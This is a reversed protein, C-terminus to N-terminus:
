AQGVEEVMEGAPSWTGAGGRQFVKSGIHEGLCRYSEWQAEDFFQDLTTEQPFRPHDAQYQAVDVPEDGTLSPKVLLLWGRGGGAYQVEALAAHASSRPSAGGAASRPSVGELPGITPRLEAALKLDDLGARDLFRIEAGYDVRAKRVLNGLDEFGYEPDAGCDCVVMFPLRRRILEYVATNEFHGGDTLYWQELAVGHFRALWEDLLFGQVPLVHRLTFGLWTTISRRSRGARDQPAIGSNWWYGLRVNALGALVSLGFSTRAGLGTSFAAGSIAVWESVGLQEPVAATPFVRFRGPRSRAVPAMMWHVARTWLGAKAAADWVAHHRLGVSVGGPGIALSVGKRDRQEVQSRGDITENVTVNILHVPGGLEEPHYQALAIGDDPHSEALPIPGREDGLRKPNSAGLYARRLRAEYVAYLSSRNVFILMRGMAWALLGLGATVWVLRTLDLQRALVVPWPPDWTRVDDLRGAWALYHPVTALVGLIAFLLLFAVAGAVLAYPLRVPKGNQQMFRQLLPRVAGAIAAVAAYVTPIRVPPGLLLLMGVMDVAGLAVFVGFVVLAQTLWQTFGARLAQVDGGAGAEGARPQRLAVWAWGLVYAVLTAGATIAVPWAIALVMGQRIFWGAVLVALAVVGVRLVGRIRGSGPDADPVLWYAWGLAIVAVLAGACLAALFPSVWVGQFAFVRLVEGPLPRLALYAMLEFVCLVFLCSVIMVVHVSVWNRAAVAAGKLLDGTGTPALYRGNERLFRIPSSQSDKLVEEPRQSPNDRCFLRGLFSGFYGGGSVTSLYDVHRLLGHQALGQFFGLCFTASRIGGGSCALGVKWRREPKALSRERERM